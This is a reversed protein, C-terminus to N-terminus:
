RRKSRALVVYNIVAGKLVLPQYAAIVCEEEKNAEDKFVLVTDKDQIEASSLSTPSVYLLYDTVPVVAVGSIALPDNASPRTVAPVPALQTDVSTVSASKGILPDGGVRTIKRKFVRRDSVNLRDLLRDVKSILATANAM